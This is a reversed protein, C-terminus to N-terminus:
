LSTKQSEEKREGAIEDFGVVHVSPRSEDQNEGHTRRADRVTLGHDLIGRVGFNLIVCSKNRGNKKGIKCM